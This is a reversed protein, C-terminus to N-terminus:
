AAAFGRQLAIAGASLGSDDIGHGLDKSFLTQVPVGAAALLGAAIRSNEAPVVSDVEGHVLLVPAHNAIEGIRDAALLRGSFALIAKPANARRLGVHLAMMAGQSFGMIAYDQVSLRALEADIFADLWVGM